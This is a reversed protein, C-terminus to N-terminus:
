LIDVIIDPLDSLIAETDVMTNIKLNYGIVCAQTSDNDITRVLCTIGDNSRQYTKCNVTNAEVHTLIDKIKPEKSVLNNKLKQSVCVSAPYNHMILISDKEKLKDTTTKSKRHTQTEEENTNDGNCGYFISTVFLITFLKKTNM